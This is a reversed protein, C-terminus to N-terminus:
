CLPDVDFIRLALDPCETARQVLHEFVDLASELHLPFRLLPEAPEEGVRRVLQAGRKGRDATVSAIRRM